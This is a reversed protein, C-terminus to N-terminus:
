ANVFRVCRPKANGNAIAHGSRGARRAQGTAIKLGRSELDPMGYCEDNKVLWTPLAPPSFRENGAPIGVYFVVQRTPFIRGGLLEPFVKGLWAGCAFVFQGASFIESAAPRSAKSHAVARRGQSQHWSPLGSRTQAAEAVVTAVTRRALLVGSEPEYYRAPLETWISKRTAPPLHRRSRNGRLDRRQSAFGRQTSRLQPNAAEALWLVGTKQFLVTNGTAAFLEKWQSSPASRGGPTSKTRAMAWAFSARNM